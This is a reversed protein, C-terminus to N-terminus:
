IIKKQLEETLDLEKIQNLLERERQRIRLLEAVPDADKSNSQLKEKLYFRLASNIMSSFKAGSEGALGEFFGFVDEDFIVHKRIKTTKMLEPFIDDFSEQLEARLAEPNKTTYEPDVNTGGGNKKFDMMAKKLLKEKEQHRM